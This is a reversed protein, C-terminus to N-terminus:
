RVKVQNMIKEFHLDNKLFINKNEKEYTFDAYYLENTERTDKSIKYKLSINNNPEEYLFWFNESESIAYCKNPLKYKFKINDFKSLEDVINVKLLTIIIRGKRVIKVCENNEELSSYLYNTSGQKSYAFFNQASKQIKKTSQAFARKKQKKNMKRSSQENLRETARQLSHYTYNGNMM